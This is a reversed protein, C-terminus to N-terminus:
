SDKLNIIEDVSRQIKHESKTYSRELKGYGNIYGLVASPSYGGRMMARGNEDADAQLVFGDYFESDRLLGKKLVEQLREELVWGLEDYYVYGLKELNDKANTQATVYNGERLLQKVNRM